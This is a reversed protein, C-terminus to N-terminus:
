SEAMGKLTREISQMVELIRDEFTHKTNPESEHIAVESASPTYITPAFRVIGHEQGEIFQLGWEFNLPVRLKSLRQIMEALTAQRLYNEGFFKLAVERLYVGRVTSHISEAIQVFHGTSLKLWIYRREGVFSKREEQQEIYAQFPIWHKSRIVGSM